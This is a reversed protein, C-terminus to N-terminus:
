WLRVVFSVYRWPKLALARNERSLSTLGGRLQVMQYLGDFHIVGTYNQQHIRQFIALTTVVAITGDSVAEPGSLRRNILDYAQILHELAEPSLKSKGLFVNSFSAAIALITHLDSKISYSLQISTITGCVPQIWSCM